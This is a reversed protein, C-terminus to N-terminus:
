AEGAAKKLLKAAKARDRENQLQEQHARTEANVKELRAKDIAEQDAIAKRLADAQPDGM